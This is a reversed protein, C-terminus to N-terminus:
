LSRLFQFLEEQQGSSLNEFRLTVDNAERRHRLIADRFTLSLGDHMLRTQMRVGWLPATRIKDATNYFDGASLNRWGVSYARRGYHEQFSQVIGDGTGVNHLLYDSFPHFAKGGLAAPITFMGGNIKTGAPATTLTRVHCIACGVADFIQSGRMASATEALVADRPPAKAARIFRTFHDIDELGDSEPRNNPEQATNCLATVEDPQLRSTIGMENLYADASFSLLSAHQDKWGFRGIRTEGPAEVVPVYLAQGRIKGGSQAPQRRAVNILTEDAVAEVFGDGLLGLSVRTTMITETLPVREQIETNSFQASPCIARDNVLSRGAIVVTGRAIPISPNEFRGGARHGVRLETIQSTAGSVPNQHCERCSQANYLPGLGDDVGEVEDFRSQDTQHTTSDVLGNSVGDFASPAEPLRTAATVLALLGVLFPYKM